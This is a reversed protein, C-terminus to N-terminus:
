QLKTRFFYIQFPVSIAFTLIDASAQLMEIGAIGFFHPLIFALPIFCIGQRCCALFTAGTTFGLCQYTQNVYTMYSLSPLSIAIFRLAAAGIVVVEPDDRFWSIVPAAFVSLLIAAIVCFFTAAKTALVFLERVRKKKGAGFCYGAIPQYGQGIGLVVDRVLMHLKNAISIAAVAADGYFAAQVNLIATSLSGLGQRCITPFGTRIIDMYVSPKKSIYEPKIKVISRGSIFIFAMITASFIQSSMTAIAAGSIGLKFGFILIPDLIINLIGGSTMGIMATFTQGESRLTTNLIFATCMFPAAILIYRGYAIAYPLITETAGIMRLIPAINFLGLIMILSGSLIGIALASSSYICADKERSAGLRRSTLSGSGMGLGFGVAQIIAMLSFVVGVAASAATDIKAVFYTDATNYLITILQIIVTPYAKRFLLGGIPAELMDKKM